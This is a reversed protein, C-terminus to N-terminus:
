TLTRSYSGQFCIATAHLLKQPMNVLSLGRIFHSTLILCLSFSVQLTTEVLVIAMGHPARLSVYNKMPVLGRNGQDTETTTVYVQVHLERFRIFIPDLLGPLQDM